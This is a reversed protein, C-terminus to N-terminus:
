KATKETYPPEFGKRIFLGTMEEFDEYSIAAFSDEQYAKEESNVRYYFKPGLCSNANYVSSEDSAKKFDLSFEYTKGQHEFTFDKIDGALGPYNISDLVEYLTFASISRSLPGNDVLDEKYFSHGDHDLIRFQYNENKKNIALLEDEQYADLNLRNQLNFLKNNKDVQNAIELNTMHKLNYAGCDYYFQPDLQAKHAYFKLNLNLDPFKDVLQKEIAVARDVTDKIEARSDFSLALSPALAQLDESIELKAGEINLKDFYYKALVSDINSAFDVNYLEDNENFAIDLFVLVDLDEEKVKVTYIYEPDSERTNNEEELNEKVEKIEYSRSPYVTNLYNLVETEEPLKEYYDYNFDHNAEASLDLKEKVNDEQSCSSLVLSFALILTILINKNFKFKKM